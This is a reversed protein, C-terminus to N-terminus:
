KIDNVGTEHGCCSASQSTMPEVDRRLDIM